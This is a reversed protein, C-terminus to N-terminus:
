HKQMAGTILNAAGAINKTAKEVNERYLDIGAFRRGLSV